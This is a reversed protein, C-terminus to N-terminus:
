SVAREFDNTGDLNDFQEGILHVGWYIEFVLLAASPATAVALALPSGSFFHHAAWYAPLFVIAAPVLLVVLLLLNGALVILRQGTAVFGRVDEKSRLAWAPFLVAVGNRILLQAGCIPIAFMLAVVIFSPSAFFALLKSTAGALNLIVASFTLLLVEISAIIMLPAAIEAAVLREGSIPYSKLLDIRVLDCRLDHRVIDPAILPVFASLFLALTATAPSLFRHGSVLASVGLVVFPVAMLLMWASSVRLGAILNKWFIAMEPGRRTDLRFLPPIRKFAVFTGAGRERRRESRALKAQSAVVSAEEFSVNLRAAILFFVTGLALVGLISIALQPLSAPFAASALIHPILLVIAIAPKQFQANVTRMKATPNNPGLAKLSAGLATWDIQTTLFWSLAVLIIVVAAVRALFGIGALRLRARGMATMVFYVSLVGFALWFGLFNARRFGIFAMIASSFLTPVQMRIIKYLLLQRRSIPAPFLFQIEAESFELGGTDGPLAWALIMLVLFVVSVIDIGGGSMVAARRAGIAGGQFLHRFSIFWLYALGAISSVLYRPQKLRRLQGLVRNKLSHLTIFVFTRTM